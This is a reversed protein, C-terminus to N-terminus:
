DLTATQASTAKEQCAPLYKSSYTSWYDWRPTEQQNGWPARFTEMEMSKGQGQSHVQGLLVFNSLSPVSSLLNSTKIKHTHTKPKGAKNTYCM